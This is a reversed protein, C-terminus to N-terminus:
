LNLQRILPFIKTTLIEQNLAGIHKYRIIGKKDIVFTEPTGYVGWDIAVRGKEDIGTKVYPNGYKKLINKAALRDDKYDISYLKFQPMKSLRMLVDHESACTPCWSAWVNVLSVHGKLDKETFPTQHSLTALKFHPAPKNLLASPLKHPDKALGQAFIAILGIFIFLPIIARPKLWSIKM